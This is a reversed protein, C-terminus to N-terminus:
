LPDDGSGPRLPHISPLHRPPAPQSRLAASCGDATLVPAAGRVTLRRGASQWAPPHDILREERDQHDVVVAVEESDQAFQDLQLAGVEGDRGAADASLRDCYRLIELRPRHQEVDVHRHHVAEVGREGDPAVAAVLRRQHDRHRAARMPERRAAGCRREVMGQSLREVELHEEPQKPRRCAPPRDGALSQRSRPAHSGRKLAACTM